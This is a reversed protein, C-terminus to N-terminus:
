ASIKSFKDYNILIKFLGDEPVCCTKDRSIFSVCNCNIVLKEDKNGNRIEFSGNKRVRKSLDFEKDFSTQADYVDNNAIILKQGIIGYEM